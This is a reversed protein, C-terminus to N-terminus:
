RLDGAFAACGFSGSGRPRSSSPMSLSWLHGPKEVAGRTLPSDPDLAADLTQQAAQERPKQSSSRRQPFSQAADIAMSRKGRVQILFERGRHNNQPPDPHVSAPVNADTFIHKEVRIHMEFRLPIGPDLEAILHHDRAACVYDSHSSDGNTFACQDAFIGADAICVVHTVRPPLDAVGAMMCFGIVIPCSTQIPRPTAIKPPTVIPSLAVIPALATTVLSM